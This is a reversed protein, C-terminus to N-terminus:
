KAMQPMMEIIYKTFDVMVRILWPMALVLFSLVGLAKPVFTLTQESISTVTQFLSISLGITMATMLIPSALTVAKFIMMRLLEVAFDPSM